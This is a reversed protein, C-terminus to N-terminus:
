SWISVRMEDAVVRIIVSVTALELIVGTHRGLVNSITQVSLIPSGVVTNLSSEEGVESVIWKGSRQVFDLNDSTMNDAFPDHWPTTSVTLSEGDSGVGFLLVRGDTLTVELPGNNKSETRDPYQFVVRRLSTLAEGPMSEFHVQADETM